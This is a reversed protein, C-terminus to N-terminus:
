LAEIFRSRQQVYITWDIGPKLQLIHSYRALEAFIVTFMEHLLKESSNQDIMSKAKSLQPAQYDTTSVAHHSVEPELLRSLTSAFLQEFLSLIQM